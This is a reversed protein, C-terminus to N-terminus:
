FPMFSLNFAREIFWALAIIVILCSGFVFIMKQYIWSKRVAYTIPLFISVIALQGFEVGINFSVLAILLTEKSLGLDMLVNAFGFGHILGFVFAVLWRSDKVIPFVNNIGALVVSLAILSEILQSPLEIVKLAALALTISHAITFATVIKFVNWFANKFSKAAEWQKKNLFLVSPLLLALLFLIHDFGIWIHWIGEKIFAVFQNIPNLSDLNFHQSSKEPSFIATIVKDKHKINLLGRHQPDFDFFLNYVLDFKVPRTNSHCNIKFRIIEYAGDTHNDILHEIVENSCTKNNTRLLFAPLVYKEIDKHHKKVEGWTINGDENDDLGIAYDLDRLSIDWQADILSLGSDCKKLTIYSDSPKHALVPSALFCLFLSILFFRM